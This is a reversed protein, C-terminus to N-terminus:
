NLLTEAERNLLDRGGICAREGDGTFVLLDRAGRPPDKGAGIDGHLCMMWVSVSMSVSMSVYAM